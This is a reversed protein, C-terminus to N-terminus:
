RGGAAALHGAVHIGVVADALLTEFIRTNESAVLPQVRPPVVGHGEIGAQGLLDQVIITRRTQEVIAKVVTTSPAAELVGPAGALQHETRQLGRHDADVVTRGVVGLAMGRPFHAHTLQIVAVFIGLDGVGDETRAGVGVLGLRVVEQVVPHGVQRAGCYVFLLFPERTLSGCRGFDDDHIRAAGGGNGDAFLNCAFFVHQMQIDLRAGIRCEEVSQERIHHVFAPVVLLVDGLVRAAKFVGDFGVAHAQFIAGLCRADRDGLEDLRGLPGVLGFGRTVARAGKVRILFADDPAIVVVHDLTRQDTEHQRGLVDAATAGADAAQATVLFAVGTRGIGAVLLDVDVLFDDVTLTQHVGQPAGVGELGREVRFLVAQDQAAAGLDDVLRNRFCATCADLLQDVHDIVGALVLAAHEDRGHVEIGGHNGFLRM